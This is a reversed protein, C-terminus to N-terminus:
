PLHDNVLPPQVPLSSQMRVTSKYHLYKKALSTFIGGRAKTEASFLGHSGFFEM